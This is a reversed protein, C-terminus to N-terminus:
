PDLYDSRGSLAYGRAGTEVDKILSLTDMLKLRVERSQARVYTLSKVEALSVQAAFAATAAVLIAAVLVFLAPEVLTLVKNEPAASGIAPDAAAPTETQLSM